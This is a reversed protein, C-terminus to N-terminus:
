QRCLCRSSRLSGYTYTDFYWGYVMTRMRKGKLVQNPTTTVTDKSRLSFTTPFPSSEHSHHLTNYSQAQKEYMSNHSPLCFRHSQVQHRQLSKKMNWHLWKTGAFRINTSGVGFYCLTFASMPKPHIPKCLKSCKSSLILTTKTKGSACKWAKCPAVPRVSCPPQIADCIRICIYAQVRIGVNLGPLRVSWVDETHAPIQDQTSTRNPFILAYM